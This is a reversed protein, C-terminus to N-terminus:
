PRVFKTVCTLLVEQAVHLTFELLMYFMLKSSMAFGTYLFPYFIVYTGLSSVSCDSPYFSESVISWQFNTPMRPILALKRDTLSLQRWGVHRQLGVLKKFPKTDYTVKKRWKLQGSPMHRAHLTTNIDTCRWFTLDVNIHCYRLTMHGSLLEYVGYKDTDDHFLLM